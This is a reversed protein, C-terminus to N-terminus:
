KKTLTFIIDTVYTGGPYNFGPQAMYQFTFSSLGRQGSTISMTSQTSSVSRYQAFGTTSYSVIYIQLPKEIQLLCARM